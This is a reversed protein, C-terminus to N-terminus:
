LCGPSPLPTPKYVAIVGVDDISYELTDATTLRITGLLMERFEPSVPVSRPEGTFVRRTLRWTQGNFRGLWDLGCHINMPYRYVTGVVISGDHVALPPLAPLRPVPQPTVFSWSGPRMTVIEIGRQSAGGIVVGAVTETIAMPAAGVGLLSDVDISRWVDGTASHLVAPGSGKTCSAPAAYCWDLRRRIDLQSYGILFIGSATVASQRSGFALGQDVM